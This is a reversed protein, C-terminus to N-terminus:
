SSQGTSKRQRIEGSEKSESEQETAQKASGTINEEVVSSSPTETSDVQADATETGDGDNAGNEEENLKSADAVWLGSDICRQLHYRADKEDMASLVSQLKSVDRSEFCIQLERPLSEFVDAPDLGGPGLRKVKEESEYQELAEAIKEKARKEIRGKFAQLEDDFADMYSKDALKIKSFFSSILQPAEPSVDLQKALELLYQMVVSQHAVHNMLSHKEEMEYNLCEIVLYNATEECCLHPNELLFAKSDDFKSMMSFKKIKEKNEKLFTKLKEEKEEETLEKKEEPKKPVNIRSTSFGETCITDANWPQLKEKHELEKEKQKWKEEQKKVDLLEDELKKKVAEDSETELQKKIENLKKQYSTLHAVTDEKEKEFEAMRELRAKHRWRFLSPTDINPHTDDEDDSVEIDKWKSYDIPM